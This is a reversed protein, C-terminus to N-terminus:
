NIYGSYNRIELNLFLFRFTPSPILLQDERMEMDNKM